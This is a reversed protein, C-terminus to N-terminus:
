QAVLRDTRTIGYTSACTYTECLLWPASRCAPIVQIHVSQVHMSALLGEVTEIAEVQLVVRKPLAAKSFDEDLLNSAEGAQQGDRVCCLLALTSELLMVSLPM